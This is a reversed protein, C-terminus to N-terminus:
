LFSTVGSMRILTKFAVILSLGHVLHHQILTGAHNSVTVKGHNIHLSEQSM